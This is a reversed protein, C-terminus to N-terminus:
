TTVVASWFESQHHSKDEATGAAWALLLRSESPTLTQKARVGRRRRAEMDVAQHEVDGKLTM